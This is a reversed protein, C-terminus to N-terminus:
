ASAQLVGILEGFTGTGPERLANRTAGTRPGSAGELCMTTRTTTMVTQQGIDSPMGSDPEHVQSTNTENSAAPRRVPKETNRQLMRQTVAISSFSM